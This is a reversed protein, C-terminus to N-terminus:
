IGGGRGGLCTHNHPFLLCSHLALSIATSVMSPSTFKEKGKFLKRPFPPLKRTDSPKSGAALTVLRIWSCVHEMEWAQQPSPEQCSETIDATGCVQQKGRGLAAGGLDSNWLIGCQRLFGESQKSRPHQFLPFSYICCLFHWGCTANCVWAALLRLTKFLYNM